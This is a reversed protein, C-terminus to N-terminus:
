RVPLRLTFTSGEGPVSQAECEGGHLAVTQKVIALGLGSVGKGNRQRNTYYREWVRELEEPPIGEGHDTVRLVANGDEARLSVIVTKDEGAHRVANDLLNYVARELRAASGYVTVNEETEREITGGERRFLSDFGDATKNVVASLDFRIFDDTGDASQLESYVLIENVLATLRDSERIIVGLDETRQREDQWSFDNVAEAYGKIMTLPTRLDHSVNALLENQYDRAKTLNASTRDLTDSLADLEASFGKRFDTSYTPEGLREAKEALRAVPRGFRRSLVWALAFGVILSFVTGIALQVRIIRVAPGVPDLTASVYLVADDTGGYPIYMGCTYLSSGETETFGDDSAALEELFAGYNDPLSRYAGNTQTADSFFGDDDASEEWGAPGKNKGGRGKGMGGRFGDEFGDGKNKRAPKYEDAIYLVDGNKDTVYVLLSNERAIADIRSSLDGDEACDAIRRAAARTNAILMTNYFSQLFVTKLLWLVSFILATFLVFYLWLKTQFTKPRRKM